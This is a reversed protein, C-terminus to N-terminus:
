LQANREDYRFLDYKQAAAELAVLTVELCRHGQYAQVHTIRCGIITQLGIKEAHHMYM